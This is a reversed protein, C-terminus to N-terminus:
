YNSSCLKEYEKIIQHTIIEPSYQSLVREFAKKGLEERLKDDNILMELKEALEYINGTRYIIGTDGLAESSAGSDSAVIALRALMAELISRSFPEPWRAPHVFIHAKKYMIPMDNLSVFGLFKITKESNEAIQRLRKEEPGRGAIWLEAKASNVISFARILDDVGKEKVLRGAYFIIVKENSKYTNVKKLNKLFTPDYMNPIIVIKDEPFGCAAYISKITNSLAFYRDLNKALARQFIFYTALIPAPV